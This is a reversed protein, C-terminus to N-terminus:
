SNESRTKVAKSKSGDVNTRSSFFFLSIVLTQKMKINQQNFANRISIVNGRAM